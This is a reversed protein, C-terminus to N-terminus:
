VQSSHSWCSGGWLFHSFIFDFDWSVKAPGLTSLAMIHICRSGNRTYGAAKISLIEINWSKVSQNLWRVHPLFCWFMKVIWIWANFRNKLKHLWLPKLSVSYGAQYADRLKGCTGDIQLEKEIQTGCCVHQSISSITVIFHRVVDGFIRICISNLCKFGWLDGDLNQQLGWWKPVHVKGVEGFGGSIEVLHRSRDSM